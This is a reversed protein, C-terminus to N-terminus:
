AMLSTSKVKEFMELVAAVNVGLFSILLLTLSVSEEGTKPDKLWLKM